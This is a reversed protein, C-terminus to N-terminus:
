NRSHSYMKNALEQLRYCADERAMLKSSELYAAYASGVDITDFNVRESRTLARGEFLETQRDFSATAYDIYDNWNHIDLCGINNFYRDVFKDLIEIVHEKLYHVEDQTGAEFLITGDYNQKVTIM